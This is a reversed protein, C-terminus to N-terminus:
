LTDPPPLSAELEWDKREGVQNVAPEGLQITASSDPGVAAAFKRADADDDFAFHLEPRGAERVVRAM